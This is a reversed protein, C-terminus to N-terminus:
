TSHKGWQQYHSLLWYSLVPLLLVFCTRNGIDEIYRRNRARCTFGHLGVSIQYLVLNGAGCCIQLALVPMRYQILKARATQWCSSRLSKSEDTDSLRADAKATSQVDYLWCFPLFALSHVLVYYENALICSQSFMSMCLVVNMHILYHPYIDIIFLLGLYFYMVHKSHVGYGFFYHMLTYMVFGMQLTIRSKTRCMQYGLVGAYILTATNVIRFWIPWNAEAFYPEFFLELFKWFSNTTDIFPRIYSLVKYMTRLSYPYISLPLLTTIVICVGIVVLLLCHRVFLWWKM